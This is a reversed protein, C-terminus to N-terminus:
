FFKCLIQFFFVFYRQVAISSALNKQGGVAPFQRTDLKDDIVDKIIIFFIDDIKGLFFSIRVEM